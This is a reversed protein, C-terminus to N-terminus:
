LLPEPPARRSNLYAREEDGLSRWVADMALRVADAAPHRLEDLALAAGELLLYARM